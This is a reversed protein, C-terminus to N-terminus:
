DGVSPESRTGLTLRYGSSSGEVLPHDKPSPLSGNCAKPDEVPEECTHQGGDVM